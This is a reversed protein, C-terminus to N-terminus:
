LVLKGEEDDRASPGGQKSTVPELVNVNVPGPDMLEVGVRFLKSVLNQFVVRRHELVIETFDLTSSCCEM